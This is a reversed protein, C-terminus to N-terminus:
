DDDDWLSLPPNKKTKARKKQREKFEEYREALDFVYETIAYVFVQLDEADERTISEAQMDPHAALNRFAHLHQSWDFLRSDIINREQLQKIGDALMLRKKSTGDRIAKKEERTFLIDRCLGELARGFMVCAAHGAGGQLAIDAELLSKRVVSPIRFSSFTKPPKPHVRVPDSWVDEDDGEWGKFRLQRSEAALLNTCRPCKGVFLRWGYPEGAENDFGTDEARGAEEAAVKAKCTPCDVIFTKNALKAEM